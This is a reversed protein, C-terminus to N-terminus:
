QFSQIWPSGGSSSQLLKRGLNSGILPGYGASHGDEPWRSYDDGDSSELLKRGPVNGQSFWGFQLLKRGESSKIEQEIFKPPIEVPGLGMRLNQGRNGIGQIIDGRGRPLRLNQGRNGLGQIISNGPTGLTQINGGSSSQLLKRGPLKGEPFWTPPEVPGLGCRNFTCGPIWGSNNDSSQLLKRGESSKVEQEIIEPDLAPLAPGLGLTWGPNNDSSGLLERGLNSGILPGIGSPPLGDEPGWFYVDGDSSELLKRGQDFIEALNELAGVSPTGDIPLFDDGDSSELLRRGQKPAPAYLRGPVPGQTHKAVAHSGLGTATGVGMAAEGANQISQDLNYAGYATAAAGGVAEAAGVIEGGM